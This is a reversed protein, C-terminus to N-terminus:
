RFDGLDMRAWPNGRSTNIEKQQGRGGYSVNLSMILQDYYDEFRNAPNEIATYDLTYTAAFESLGLESYQQVHTLEHAWLAANASGSQFEFVIVNVLTIATAETFLAIRQVLGDFLSAGTSYRVSDLVRSSFFPELQDRIDQPIPRVGAKLAANRGDAIALALPMGIVGAPPNKLVEVIEDPNRMSYEVYSLPSPIGDDIVKIPDLLAGVPDAWVMKARKKVGGFIFEGADVLCHHAHLLRCHAFTTAPTLTFAFVTIATTALLTSISKM